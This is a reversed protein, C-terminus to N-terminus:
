WNNKYPLMRSPQGEVFFGNGYDSDLGAYSYYNDNFVMTTRTVKVVYDVRSDASM